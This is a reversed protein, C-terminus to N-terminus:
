EPLNGRQAPHDLPHTLLHREVDGAWPTDRFTDVMVTAESRAEALRGLNVLSRIKFWAREPADESGPFRADAERVLELSREPASQALARLEAMITAEDARRREVPVRPEPPRAPNANRTVSALSDNQASRAASIRSVERVGRERVASERHDQAILAASAAVLACIGAALLHRQKM